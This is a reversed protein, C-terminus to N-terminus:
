VFLTMMAGKITIGNALHVDHRKEIHNPFNFMNRFKRKCRGIIVALMVYKLQRWAMKSRKQQVVYRCYQYVSRCYTLRAWMNQQLVKAKAEGYAIM